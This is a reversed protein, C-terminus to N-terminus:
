SFVQLSTAWITLSSGYWLPRVKITPTIGETVRLVRLGWLHHWGRQKM